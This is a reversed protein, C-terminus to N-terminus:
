PIKEAVNNINSKFRPELVVFFAEGHAQGDNNPVQPKIYQVAKVKPPYGSPDGLALSAGVTFACKLSETEINRPLNLSDAQHFYFEGSSSLFDDVNKRSKRMHYQKTEMTYETLFTEIQEDLIHADPFFPPQNEYYEEFTTGILVVGQRLDDLYKRYARKKHEYIELNAVMESLENNSFFGHITDPTNSKVRRINKEKGGINCFIQKTNGNGTEVEEMRKLKRNENKRKQM